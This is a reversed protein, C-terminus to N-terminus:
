IKGRWDHGNQTLVQYLGVSLRSVLKESMDLCLALEIAHITEHLITEQVEDLSMDTRVYITGIKDDVMGRVEETEGPITNIYVITYTKGLINISNM